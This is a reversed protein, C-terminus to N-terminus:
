ESEDGALVGMWEGAQDFRSAPVPPVHVDVVMMASGVRAALDPRVHGGSELKAITSRSVGALRALESQSMGHDLRAMGVAAGIRRILASGQRNYKPPM